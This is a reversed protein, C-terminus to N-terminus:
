SIYLTNDHRLEATTHQGGRELRRGKKQVDATLRWWGTNRRSGLIRGTEKRVAGNGPIGSAISGGDDTGRLTGLLEKLAVETTKGNVRWSGTGRGNGLTGVNRSCDGGGCTGRVM